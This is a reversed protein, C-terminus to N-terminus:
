GFVLSNILSPSTTVFATSPLNIPTVTGDTPESTIGALFTMTGGFVIDYEASQYELRCDYVYVGLFGLTTGIPSIFGIVNAGGTLTAGSATAGTVNTSLAILNAGAGTAKSGMFLTVGTLSYACLSIQPDTSAQVLTLLSALTAALTGGINVQNGTAGSAVFTVTSTGLVIYQGATPNVTFAITGFAQAESYVIRGNNTSWEYLVPSGIAQRMQARFVCSALPFETQFGSVDYWLTLTENNYATVDVENPYAM